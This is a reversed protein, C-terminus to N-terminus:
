KRNFLSKIKTKLSTKEKPKGLYSDIDQEVELIHELVEDIPEIEENNLVKDLYENHKPDNVGSYLLLSHLRGTKKMDPEWVYKTAIAKMDSEHNESDLNEKNTAIDCLLNRVYKDEANAVLEVDNLHYKSNLSASNCMVRYVNEFSDKKDKSIELLRNVDSNHYYNYVFNPNSLLSEFYFVYEEDLSSLLNLYTDYEPVEKGKISDESRKVLLACDHLRPDFLVQSIYENYYEIKPNTIFIYVALSSAESNANVLANIESRNYDSNIYEPDGMVNLIWPRYDHITSLLEMNELHHKDRLSEANTALKELYDSYVRDSSAIFNMDQKHYESKISPENVAINTLALAKSEDSTNAIIEIDDDHHPSTIFVDNNVIVGPFRILKAKKLVEIDKYFNSSNLFNYSCINDLIFWLDKHKISLIADLKNDFDVCDLLAKSILAKDVRKADELSIGISNFNAIQRDNLSDIWKDFKESSYFTKTLNYKKIQELVKKFEEKKM